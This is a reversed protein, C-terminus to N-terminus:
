QAHVIGFKRNIIQRITELGGQTSTLKELKSFSGNANCWKTKVSWDMLDVTKKIRSFGANGDLFHFDVQGRYQQKMLEQQQPLLGLIAVKFLKHKIPAAVAEPEPFPEDPALVGPLRRDLAANVEARVMKRMAEPNSMETLRKLLEALLDPTTSSGLTPEKPPQPAHREVEPNHVPKIAQHKPAVSTPPAVAPPSPVNRFTVDRNEHVLDKDFEQWLPLLWTEYSKAQHMDRHEHPEINEEMAQRVAKTITGQYQPQKVILWATLAVARKQAPTWVIRVM